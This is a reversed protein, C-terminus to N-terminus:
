VLLRAEGSSGPLAFPPIRSYSTVVIPKLQALEEAGYNRISLRVLLLTRVSQALYVM